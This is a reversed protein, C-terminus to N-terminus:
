AHNNIITKLTESDIKIASLSSMLVYNTLDRNTDNDIVEINYGEKVYSIVQTLTIYKHLMTDYLKRNTYRKILRKEM